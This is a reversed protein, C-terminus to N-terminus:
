SASLRPLAGREDRDIGYYTTDQSVLLLERVGGAALARAERVISEAPRSRYAGRLKPIICFACKYNCGEAIKVYALHRPTTLTRPTHDDYLYTPRELLRGRHRKPALTSRSTASPVTARRDAHARVIGPM